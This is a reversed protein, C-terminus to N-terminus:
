LRTLKGPLVALQALGAGVLIKTLWDSIDELNTNTTLRRDDQPPASTSAAGTAGGAPQPQPAASAASRPVRPIGFIFGLLAGISIFAAGLLASNSLVGLFSGLRAGPVQSADANLAHLLVCLSSLFFWIFLGMSTWLVNVKKDQRQPDSSDPFQRLFNLM